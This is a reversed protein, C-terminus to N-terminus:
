DSLQICSKTVGHITAQWAGRDKVTEQLNSLSMDTLDTISDLSRMRQQGRRRWGEIKGVMLNKELSDAGRMLYGFIPAEADTRGIFVWSLNGKTNVPKIKNTKELSFTYTIWVTRYMHFIEYNSFLLMSPWCVRWCWPSVRALLPGMPLAAERGM